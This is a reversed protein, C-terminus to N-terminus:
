YNWFRRKDERKKEADVDKFGSIELMSREEGRSESEASVNVDNINVFGEPGIPDSDYADESAEDYSERTDYADAGYIEGTNNEDRKEEQVVVDFLAEELDLNEFEKAGLAGSMFGLNLFEVLDDDTLDEPLESDEYTKKFGIKIEEFEVEGFGDELVDEVEVEKGLDSDDDSVLFWLFCVKDIKRFFKRRLNIM